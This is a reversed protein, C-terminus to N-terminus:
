GDAIHVTYAQRLPRFSSIDFAFNRMALEYEVGAPGDRLKRSCKDDRNGSWRM